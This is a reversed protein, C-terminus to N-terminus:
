VVCNALRKTFMLGVSAGAGDGVWRSRILDPYSLLQLRAWIQELLKFFSIVKWTPSYDGKRIGDMTIFDAPWYQNLLKM